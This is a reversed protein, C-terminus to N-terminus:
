DEYAVLQNGDMRMKIRMDDDSPEPRAVESVRSLLKLVGHLRASNVMERSAHSVDNKRNGARELVGPWSCIM